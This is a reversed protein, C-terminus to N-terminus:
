RIRVTGTVALDASSFGLHVQYDGPETRWAGDWHQFARAPIRLDATSTQGPGATM